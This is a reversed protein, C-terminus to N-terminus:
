PGRPTDRGLRVQMRADHRGDARQLAPQVAPGVLLDHVQQLRRAARGLGLVPQADASARLSRIM